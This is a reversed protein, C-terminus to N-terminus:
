EKAGKKLGKKKRMSEGTLKFRHGNHVLRDCVADAITEDGIFSHWHKPDLQSTIVTSSVDYRDELIERLDRREKSELPACGFDDIILLEVKALKKLLRPYTGDAKALYLEGFLRPARTYLVRYGERCAKNGLACPLFTKGTGTPGTIILNQHETIWRCSLLELVKSKKLGRPHKYDIEEVSAAMPLRAQRLRNTLKRGERAIWEADTMLGLLDAPDLDKDGGSQQWEQLAQVMGSLKMGSLKEITQELIM